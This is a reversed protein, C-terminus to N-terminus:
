QASRELGVYKDHFNSNALKFRRLAELRRDALNKARDIEENASKVLAGLVFREQLITNLMLEHASNWNSGLQGLRQGISDTYRRLEGQLSPSVSGYGAVESFFMLSIDQDLNFRLGPQEQKLRKLELILKEVLLSLALENRLSSSDQTPVLVPQGVIKEVIKEAPVTLIRQSSTLRGLELLYSEIISIASNLQPQANRLKRLEALLKEGDSTVKGSLERLRGELAAQEAPLVALVAGHEAIEHVYKLVEVVQPLMIIREVVKEQMSPVEIIKEITSYVPLERQEYRDVVQLEKTIYNNTNSVEKMQQVQVIKDRFVEIQHVEPVQSNVAIIKEVNVNVEKIVEQIVPVAVTKSTTNEYVQNVRVLQPVSLRLEIIKPVEVIKEVIKEVEIYKIVEVIKEVIKEVIQPVQVIQTVVEKVPVLREVFVQVEKINEQVVIETTPVAKPNNVQVVKEVIREVEEVITNQVQVAIIKDIMQPVQVVKEILREVPVLKQVIREVEVPVEVKVTHSREVEIIKEVEHIKPM